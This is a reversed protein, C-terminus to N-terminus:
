VVEDLEMRMVVAGRLLSRLVILVLAFAVGALIGGLLLIALFPPGPINFLVLVVIMIAAVIAYILVDVLKLSPPGFIRDDRTYGVLVATVALVVVVCVGFAIAAATFPVVLHAFEPYIRAVSQASIGVIVEGAFVTVALLGLAIRTATVTFLSSYTSPEM